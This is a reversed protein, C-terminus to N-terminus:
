ACDERLHSEDVKVKETEYSVHETCLSGVVDDTCEFRVLGVM